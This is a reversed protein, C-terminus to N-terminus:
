SQRLKNCATEKVLFFQFNRRREILVKENEDETLANQVSINVRLKLNLALTSHVWCTLSSGIELKLEQPIKSELQSYFIDELLKASPTSFVSLALRWERLIQTEKGDKNYKM